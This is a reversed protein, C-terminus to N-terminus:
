KLLADRFVLLLRETVVAAADTNVAVLIAVPPDNRIPGCVATFLLRSQLVVGVVSLSARYLPVINKLQALRRVAPIGSTDVAVRAAPPAAAAYVSPRTVSFAVPGAGPNAPALIPMPRM